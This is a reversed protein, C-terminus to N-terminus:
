LVTVLKEVALNASQVAGEMYGPYYDSTESGSFIVKGDFYNERFIPHGNNQHPQNWQGKSVKVLPDDEWLTEQYNIYNKADDGLIASLQHIVREKREEQSLENLSPNLFGCLSFKTEEQNSHDYCETFPGYNSFITGTKNGERWFPKQYELAAKTSDEMWTQTAKAVQILSSPIEPSFHIQTAWVKPPITIIVKECSFRDDNDTKIIVQDAIEINTVEKQLLIHEQGVLSALHHIIQSTGNAFRYSPTQDPLPYQGNQPSNPDYFYYDASHYQPFYDFNMEKILAILNRHQPGFWTAGMEMPTQNEGYLTHIRGGVRGRAELIKFDIGHQKLRYATLLGSLGAGIIIVM